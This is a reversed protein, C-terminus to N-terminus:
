EAVLAVYQWEGNEEKFSGLEPGTDPPAEEFQQVRCSLTSIAYYEGAAELIYIPEPYDDPAKHLTVEDDRAMGKLKLSGICEPHRAAIVTMDLRSQWFWAQDRRVTISHDRNGDIMFTAADMVCGALLPLAAVLLLTRRIGTM